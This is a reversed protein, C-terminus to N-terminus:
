EMSRTNFRKETRSSFHLYKTEYKTWNFLIKGLELICENSLKNMKKQLQIRTESSEVACCHTTNYKKPGHQLKAFTVSFISDHVLVLAVVLLWVRNM